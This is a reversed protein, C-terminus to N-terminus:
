YGIACGDKRPDSAGTLVSNQWDIAIAQSGGVPAAPDVITHGRRVLETRVDGVIANEMEVEGTFPDAMFRPLDMAQQLDFGFDLYRTLFQLHGFAQYQGGMVGFCLNSRGDESAMAPIITHLPRKGGAIRNPHGAELTFGQGRNHLVVGSSPATIGSGFGFFLTNIFSCANRDEDVVSIYVTDRHPPLAIDPATSAARQPDIAGVLKRAYGESLLDEVPIDSFAPDGVYHSRSAYALRCAEIELHIRDATLPGGPDIDMQKIMNLLLLAIVGQGNPPCQHITRGRFESAIPTVYEGAASTFDEMTHLGGLSQLHEVIDHAIWGSYFEDRGGEAIAKLSNALLPLTLVSGVGPVAGENLYIAATIPDGRLFEAQGAFDRHVRSSIPFGNEAYDIAPALVEAFQLRGHDGQLRAWADIAGPGTVAHPSHRDIATIGQAQLIEPDAAAPARGSGNYAIPECSGEPSYMCFCDGGIGTSGPEVVCQVACAAIAADMANGGQQMIRIAAQTALPHSTAAM